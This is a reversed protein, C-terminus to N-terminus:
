KEQQEAVTQPRIELARMSNRYQEDTQRNMAEFKKAQAAARPDHRTVYLHLLEFNASYSNPDLQLARALKHEAKDFDHMQAYVAGTEALVEPQNPKLRDATTLEVLAKESEGQQRLICGLYYHAEAATAPHAAARQLWVRANDFDKDRFYATALALGGAPDGPRLAEYKRLYPLAQAPDELFSTLTGIGFNYEPNDPVQKVAERMATTAEGLLNLRLCIVGFEYSLSADGPRLERAHALYGLAAKDDREALAIRTLDVLPAANAPNMEFVHELTARAQQDKGEAEQALGVVRLGAASLPQRKDAASFIMEILDARHAARLAPLVGAADQETLAPNGAMAEAARTTVPLDGLAAEDTCTLAEAGIQQQANADLRRLHDLSLQYKHEAALLTAAEFNAEENASDLQLAKEYLHLTQERADGTLEGQQMCIRALNLYAGTLKPEHLIARAFEQKAQLVNGQQIDIIGLLNELGGNAPYRKLAAGVAAQAQGTHNAQILQQIALVTDRYSSSNQQALATSTGITFALLGHLLFLHPARQLDSM